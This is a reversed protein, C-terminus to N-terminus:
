RPVLQPAPCDSPSNSPSPNPPSFPSSLKPLRNVAIARLFEVRHGGM